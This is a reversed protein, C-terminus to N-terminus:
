LCDGVHLIRRRGICTLGIMEDVGHSRYRERGGIRTALQACIKFYSQSYVVRERSGVSSTDCSTIWAPNWWCIKAARIGVNSAGSPRYTFCVRDGYWDSM